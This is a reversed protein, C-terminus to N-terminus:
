RSSKHYTLRDIRDLLADARQFLAEGRTSIWEAVASVIVGLRDLARITLMLLKIKQDITM